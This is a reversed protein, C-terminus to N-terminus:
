VLGSAAGPVLGPLLEAVSVAGPVNANDLEVFVGGLADPLGLLLFLHFSDIAPAVIFNPVAINVFEVVLVVLM